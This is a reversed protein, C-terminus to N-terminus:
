PTLYRRTIAQLTQQRAHELAAAHSSALDREISALEAGLEHDSLTDIIWRSFDARSLHYDLTALDCHRLLRSFEQISAATAAPQTQDSRFYFQRGAPLPTAAYKHQHRVHTSRRQDVTFARAPRGATELTAHVPVDVGVTGTSFRPQVTLTISITDRVGRPLSEPQWTILCMGPEAVTLGGVPYDATWPRDQAEDRIVWHPIGYRAREASIADPLRQLYELRDGAGLGSLDLVLSTHNPRMIDLLDRPNPLHQEADVLHVGPRTALGVHDGEPDIVLVSYGAEIWREALVGALYSKGSGTDGCILM